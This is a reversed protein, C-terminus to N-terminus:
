PRGRLPSIARELIERKAPTESPAPDDLSPVVDYQSAYWIYCYVDSDVDVDVHGDGTVDTVRVPFPPVGEGDDADKHVQVWDGVKVM